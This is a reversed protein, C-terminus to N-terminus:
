SSSRSGGGSDYMAGARHIFKHEVRPQHLAV